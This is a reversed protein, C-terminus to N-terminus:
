FVPYPDHFTMIYRTRLCDAYRGLHQNPLHVITSSKNLLKLSNWDDLIASVAETSLWSVNFRDRIHEYVNSYLKPVDLRESLRQCLYGNLWVRDNCGLKGNFDGSRM